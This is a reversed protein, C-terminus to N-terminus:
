KLFGYLINPQYHPYYTQLIHIVKNLIGGQLPTVSVGNYDEYTVSFEIKNLKNLPLSTKELKLINNLFTSDLTLNYRKCYKEIRGLLIIFQAKFEEPRDILQWPFNNISLKSKKWATFTKVNIYFTNKHFCTSVNSFDHIHVLTQPNMYLKILQVQKNINNDYTTANKTDAVVKYGAQALLNAIQEKKEQSTFYFDIDKYSAKPKFLAKIILSGSLICDEQTFDFPLFALEEKLYSLAKYHHQLDNKGKSTYYM